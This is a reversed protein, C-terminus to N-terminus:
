CSTASSTTPLGHGDIEASILKTVIDDRPCGRREEAMTMSYGLIEIAAM